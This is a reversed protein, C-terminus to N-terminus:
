NMLLSFVHEAKDWIFCPTNRVFKNSIYIYHEKLAKRALNLDVCNVFFSWSLIKEGEVM